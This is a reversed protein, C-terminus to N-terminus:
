KPGSPKDVLENSDYYLDTKDYVLTKRVNVLLNHRTNSPPKRYYNIRLNRKHVVIVTTTDKTGYRLTDRIFKNVYLGINEFTCLPFFSVESDLHIKNMRMTGFRM